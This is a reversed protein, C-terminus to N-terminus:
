TGSRSTCTGAAQSCTPSTRGACSAPTTGHRRCVQKVASRFLVMADAAELGEMPDFTFECQSPGYEVEITRLPLGLALIDRRLFDLVPDLEDMRQETLYQFGHSVLSVDPPTAPQGAGEPKLRPDELKFVHFEVELGAVYTYGKAALDGLADRLIQRTAFPIPKGNPFYIDCLMWGTRSAWPLVAFTAPDPVMIFDGAGEMEPMGIGGGETFVPYITRHSTDKALLTSVMACGNNMALAVVGAILTKGRLIGHQDPFSLRVVELGQDEIRKLVRKAAEDRDASALGHREVFSARGISGEGPEM